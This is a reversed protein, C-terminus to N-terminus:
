ITEPSATLHLLAWCLKYKYPFSHRLELLGTLGEGKSMDVVLIMLALCVELIDLESEEDKDSGEEECDSRDMLAWGRLGVTHSDVASDGFPESDNGGRIRGFFLLFGKLSNRIM